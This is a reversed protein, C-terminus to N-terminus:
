YEVRERRFASVFIWALLLLEVAVVLIGGQDRIKESILIGETINAVSPAFADLTKNLVFACIVWVFACIIM